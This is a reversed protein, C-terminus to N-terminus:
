TERNIEETRKAMRSRFDFWYDTLGLLSVFLFLYIVILAMFLTQWFASMRINEFFRAVNAIGQFFFLMFTVNLVNASVAEIAPIGFGGFAGLLGAIFVWIVADPLRLERLQGRMTVVAPATAVGEMAAVEKEDNVLRSELLIALYIAGMWLALIVSPLVLMLDFYNIQVQSNIQTLPKFLAELYTLVLQSWKPGALYVWFIFAGAGILGNIVLTFFSALKVGFGMEELESFVGILVVLSFFAIALIKLQLAFMGVSLVTNFGWFVARGFKRRSVKLSVAGLIYTLATMIVAWASYFIIRAARQTKSM